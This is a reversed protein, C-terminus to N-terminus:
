PASPDPPSPPAPAAARPDRAASLALRVAEEPTDAQLLGDLQPGVLVVVPRGLKRALAIESLTGWGHGIAIGADGSSAVAVNRGQGAGTAVVVSAHPNAARPDDGPIVAVVTGGAQAAGRSAAEMVGGLGGTVLTVGAEALLRGVEAALATERETPVGAGFVSIQRGAVLPL